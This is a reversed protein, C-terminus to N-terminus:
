PQSRDEWVVHFAPVGFDFGGSSMQDRATKGEGAFLAYEETVASYGLGLREFGSEEAVSCWYPTASPDGDHWHNFDNCLGVMHRVSTAMFSHGCQPPNSATFYDYEDPLGFACHGLEHQLTEWRWFPPNVDKRFINAMRGIFPVITGDPLSPVPCEFAELAVFCRSRTLEDGSSMTWNLCVDCASGPPVLGPIGVPESAGPLNPYGCTCDHDRKLVHVTPGVYKRGQTASYWQKVAGLLTKEMAAAVVASSEGPHDSDSDVDFTMGVYIDKPAAAPGAFVFLRFPGSGRRSHVALHWLRSGQTCDEELLEISKQSPTNGTGRIVNAADPAPDAECRALLEFDSGAAGWLHVRRMGQSDVQLLIVDGAGFLYGDLRQPGLFWTPHGPTATLTYREADCTDSCALEVSEVKFGNFAFRQDHDSEFYWRVPRSQLSAGSELTPAPGPIIGSWRFHKDIDWSVDLFDHDSGATGAQTDFYTFNFRASNTYCNAIVSRGYRLWNDYHQGPWAPDSSAALRAEDADGELEDTGFAINAVTPSAKSDCPYPLFEATELPRVRRIIFDSEPSLDSRNGAGDVAALYYTLHQNSSAGVSWVCHAGSCHTLDIHSPSEYCTGEERRCNTLAYGAVGSDDSQGRIDTEVMPWNLTVLGTPAFAVQPATPPAPAVRDFVFSTEESWHSVALGLGFRVRWCYWGDPLDRTGESTSLNWEPSEDPALSILPSRIYPHTRPATCDPPNDVRDVPRVEFQVADVHVLCTGRLDPPAECGPVATAHAGRLTPLAQSATKDPPAANAPDVHLLTGFLSAAAWGDPPLRASLKWLDPSPYLWRELRGARERFRDFSENRLPSPEDDDFHSRNSLVRGSRLHRSNPRGFASEAWTAHGAVAIPRDTWSGVATAYTRGALSTADADGDQLGGAFGFPQFGNGTESVVVGFEDYDVRQAVAGSSADVILRPSGLHDRVMRYTHGGKVMFDPAGDESAHVFRSVVGGSGDLEAAIRGDAGWLFGQVLTGDVKKGVRRNAADIVYNIRRGDPLDIRALNGLDDYGYTTTDGTVVDTKTWREGNATYTYTCNGYSLLRDGEYTGVDTASDTVRSLRNGAADYEYHATLTGDRTVDQLRGAGDYTYVTTHTEGEVTETKSSLRGLADHDYTASYLMTTGFRATYEHLRAYEDDTRSDTVYGLTTGTVAGDGPDRAVTMAGASTLLGDDDYGFSVASGGNVTTSGVRLGDRYSTGVSGSVAGTWTMGTPLAGDHSLSLGGGPGIVGNMRGTVPDYTYTWTGAARVVSSLRGAGDYGLYISTGDPRTIETVNGAADFARVNGDNPSVEGVGDSLDLPAYMYGQVPVRAPAVSLLHGSPDWAYTLTTGGPPTWTRVRDADDYTYGGVRGLADTVTEALGHANFTFALTHTGQVVSEPRGRSDFGFATTAIGPVRVERVRGQADLVTTRPRGLPSRIEETNTALDLTTTTTKGNVANTEVIGTAGAPDSPDDHAPTRTASTTAIHGAPTKVAFTAGVPALWGFTPDPLLHAGYSLWVDQTWDITRGVGWQTRDAQKGWRSGDPWVTEFETTGDPASVTRLEDGAGPPNQTPGVVVEGPRAPLRAYV